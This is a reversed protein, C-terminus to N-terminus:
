KNIEKSSHDLNILALSKGESCSDINIYKLQCGFMGYDLYDLYYTM